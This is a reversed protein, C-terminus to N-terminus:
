GAKYQGYLNRKMRPSRSRMKWWWGAKEGEERLPPSPPSSALKISHARGARSEDRAPRTLFRRQDTDLHTEILLVIRLPCRAFRKSPRTGSGGCMIRCPFDLCTQARLSSSRRVKM